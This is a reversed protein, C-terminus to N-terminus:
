VTDELAKMRTLPAGVQCGAPSSISHLRLKEHGLHARQHIFVHETAQGALHSALGLRVVDRLAGDSRGSRVLQPHNVDILTKWVRVIAEGHHQSADISESAHHECIGDWILLSVRYHSM